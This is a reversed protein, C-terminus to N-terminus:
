KNDRLEVVGHLFVQNIMFPGSRRSKLKSLISYSKNVLKLVRPQIYKNHWRKLKEKFIMANKYSFMRMEELENLQLM